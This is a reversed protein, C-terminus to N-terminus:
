RSLPVRAPRRQRPQEPTPQHPDEEDVVDGPADVRDAVEEAAAAKLGVVARGVDEPQGSGESPLGPVVVVVGKGAGGDVAQLRQSSSGEARIMAVMSFSPRAQFTTRIEGSRWASRRQM